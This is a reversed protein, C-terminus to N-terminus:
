VQAVEPLGVFRDLVPGPDNSSFLIDLDGITEARRRLSGCVEARIVLPHARVAELIPAVLRRAKSQLVRDGVKEIFGIGELIKAQTKDGFGKLPAIRGSEAAKRLDALSEIKLEEALMKIKKPGLGPVRLLAALGPPTTRRLEDFAPLHGTKVLQTIKALMTEGIGPVEALSGDDVMETLDAPLTRLAQAANHYARCRFPHEGRIELITGMEDLIQAIRATEM